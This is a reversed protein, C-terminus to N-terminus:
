EPVGQSDMDDVRAIGHSDKAVLRVAGAVTEGPGTCTLVYGYSGPAVPTVSESGRPPRKGVWDGSALCETAGAVSWRLRSSHGFAIVSPAVTFALPEGPVVRPQAAAKSGGPAAAAALGRSHALLWDFINQNYTDYAPLGQGLGTLGLVPMEVDNHSVGPLVTIKAREVPSCANISNVTEVQTQYPVTADAEGNFAWAPTDKLVCGASTGYGGSIPVVAALQHPYNTVYDWTDGSGQSHGGMYIRSTDVKYTNIAYDLFLKTQAATAVFTLPDVCRQPSLVIFPRSDDWPGQNILRVLNGGELISLPAQVTYPNLFRAGTWGHQYLILPFKQNPDDSYNVPLHEYYGLHASTTGIDRATQAKYTGAHVRVMRVVEVAASQASNVVNYRILYDGVTNTDLAALGTVTIRSTVDGDHPDRATAGADAYVFGLPQSVVRPGLLTIVPKNADGSDVPTM